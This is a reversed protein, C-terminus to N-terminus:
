VGSPASMFRHPASPAGAGGGRDEGGVEIQPGVDVLHGVRELGRQADLQMESQRTPDTEHMNTRFETKIEEIM